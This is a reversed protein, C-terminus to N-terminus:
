VNNLISKSKEKGAHDDTLQIMPSQSDPTISNIKRGVPDEGNERKAKVTKNTAFSFWIYSFLLGVESNEEQTQKTKIM